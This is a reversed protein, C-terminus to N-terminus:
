GNQTRGKKWEKYDAESLEKIDKDYAGQFAGGEDSTPAGKDDEVDGGDTYLERTGKPSSPYPPQTSREHLNRDQPDRMQIDDPGSPRTKSLETM